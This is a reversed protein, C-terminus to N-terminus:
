QRDEILDLLKGPKLRNFLSHRIDRSPLRLKHRMNNHIQIWNMARDLNGIGDDNGTAKRIIENQELYSIWQIDLMDIIAAQTKRDYDHLFLELRDSYVGERESMDSYPFLSIFLDFSLTKM